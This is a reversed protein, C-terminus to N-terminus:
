RVEFNWQAAPGQSVLRAQYRGPPLEALPLEVAYDADHWRGLVEGASMKELIPMLVVEHSRVLMQVRVVEWHQDTVSATFYVASGPRPTPPATAKDISHALVPPEAFLGALNPGLGAGGRSVSAGTFGAKEVPRRIPLDIKRWGADLLRTTTVRNAMDEYPRYARGSKRFYVNVLTYGAIFLVIALVIWKMPWPKPTPRLNRPSSM